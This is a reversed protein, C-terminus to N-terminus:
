TVTSVKTSIYLMEIERQNENCIGNHLCCLAKEHVYRFIFHEM